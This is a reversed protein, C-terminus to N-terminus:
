LSLASVELESLASRLNRKLDVQKEVSVEVSRRASDGAAKAIQLESRLGANEARAIDLQAEVSEEASQARRRADELREREEEQQVQMVQIKRQLAAPRSAATDAMQGYQDLTKIIIQQRFRLPETHESASQRVLSARPSGSM